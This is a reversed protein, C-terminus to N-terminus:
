WSLREVGYAAQIAIAMASNLLWESWLITASVKMIFVALPAIVITIVHPM